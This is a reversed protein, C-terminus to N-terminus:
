RSRHSALDSQVPLSVAILDALAFQAAVPAHRPREVTFRNTSM